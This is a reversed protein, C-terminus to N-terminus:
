IQVPQNFEVTEGNEVLAAVIKGSVEARAILDGESVTDGSHILVEVIEGAAPSPIDMVAKDSELSILSDEEKVVDGPNIFVEVVPVDSFGGLDPVRIEQVAM